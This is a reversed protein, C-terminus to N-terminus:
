RGYDDAGDAVFALPKTWVARDFTVRRDVDPRSAHTGAGPGERYLGVTKRSRNASHADDTFLAIADRSPMLSWVARLCRACRRPLVPEGLM